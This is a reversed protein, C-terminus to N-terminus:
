YEDYREDMIWSGIDESVVSLVSVDFLEAVDRLTMWPNLVIPHYYNWYADEKLKVTKSKEAYKDCIARISDPIDDSLFKSDENGGVYHVWDYLLEYPNESENSQYETIVDLRYFIRKDNHESFWGIDELHQFEKNLEECMEVFLDYWEIPIEMESFFSIIEEDSWTGDNFNCKKTEEWYADKTGSNMLNLDLLFDFRQSLEILQKTTVYEM